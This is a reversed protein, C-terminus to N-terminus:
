LDDFTSLKRCHETGCEKSEEKKGICNEGEHAADVIIDRKRTTIGRGCTKSCIGWHSWSGWVCDVAAIKLVIM